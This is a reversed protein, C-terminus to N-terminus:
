VRAERANVYGCAALKSPTAYECACLCAFAYQRRRGSLRPRTDVAPVGSHAAASKGALRIASIDPRDCGWARSEIAPCRNMVVKPRLM